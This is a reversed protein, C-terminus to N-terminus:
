WKKVIIRRKAWHGTTGGRYKSTFTHSGTATATFVTMRFAPIQSGIIQTGIAANTDSAALTTAGSVAFSMYCDISSTSATIVCQM